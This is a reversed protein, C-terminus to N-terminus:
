IFIFTTLAIPDQIIVHVFLIFGGANLDRNGAVFAFIDKALQL